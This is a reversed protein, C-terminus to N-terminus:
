RVAANHGDCRLYILSAAIMFSQGALMGLCEQLSLVPVSTAWETAYRTAMALGATLGGAVVVRFAVRRSEFASFSWLWLAALLGNTVGIIPMAGLLDWRM